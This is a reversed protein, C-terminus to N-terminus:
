SVQDTSPNQNNNNPIEKAVQPSSQVPQVPPQEQGDPKLGKKFNRISEGIASGLQPLKSPGFMLLAVGLIILLESSSPVM